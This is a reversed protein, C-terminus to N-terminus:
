TGHVGAYNLRVGHVNMSVITLALIRNAVRSIASIRANDSIFVSAWEYSFTVVCKLQLHM